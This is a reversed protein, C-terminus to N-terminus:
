NPHIRLGPKLRAYGDADIRPTRRAPIACLISINAASAWNQFVKDHCQTDDPTVSTRRQNILPVTSALGIANQRM